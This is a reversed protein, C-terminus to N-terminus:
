LGLFAGLQAFAWSHIMARQPKRLRVTRCAPDLEGTQAPLILQMRKGGPGSRGPKGRLFTFLFNQARQVLEQGHSM